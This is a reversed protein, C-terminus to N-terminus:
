QEGFFNAGSYAQQNKAGILPNDNVSNMEIEITRACEHLREVFQRSDNIMALGGKPQLDLKTLGIEKLADLANMRRTYFDVHFSGNIGYIFSAIYTLPVLDGSAGVSDFEPILPTINYFASDVHSYSIMALPWQSRTSTILSSTNLLKVDAANWLIEECAKRILSLTKPICQHQEQSCIGTERSTLLRQILKMLEGNNKVSEKQNLRYHELQHFELIYRDQLTVESCCLTSNRNIHEFPTM